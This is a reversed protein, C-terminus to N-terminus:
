QIDHSGGRRLATMLQTYKTVYSRALTIGQAGQDRDTIAYGLAELATRATDLATDFQPQPKALPERKRQYTKDDLGKTTGRSSNEERRLDNSVTKQDVGVVSAIARQSMGSEALDVVVERRQLAPLQVGGLESVSWEAWSEYGMALWVRGAYARKVDNAPFDNVWKRIRGTIARADNFPLDSTRVVALTVPM